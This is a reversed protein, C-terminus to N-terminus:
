AFGRPVRRRHTTRAGCPFRLLLRGSMAPPPRLMQGEPLNSSKVYVESSLQSAAPNILNFCMTIIVGAEIRCTVELELMDADDNWHGSSVAGSVPSKFTEVNASDVSSSSYITLTGTGNASRANSLTYIQIRTDQEATMPVSPQLTVCIVNEACPYPSSQWIEAKKFGSDRVFLPAGEGPMANFIGSLIRLSDYEMEGGELAGLEESKVYVDQAFQPLFPNAVEFSLVYPVGAVMDAGIRFQLSTGDWVADTFPHSGGLSIAGYTANAGALGSITIKAVDLSAIRFEVNTALTLTLVNIDGPYPSSQGISKTTFAAQSKFSLVRGVMDFPRLGMSGDPLYDCGHSNAPCRVLITCTQAPQEQEANKVELAIMTHMNAPIASTVRLILDGTAGVGDDVPTFSVKQFYFPHMGGIEYDSGTLVSGILGSITVESGVPVVVNTKMMMMLTNYSRIVTSSETISAAIISPTSSAGLVQGSMTSVGIIVSPHDAGVSPQVPEQFSMPNEVELNFSITERAKMGDDSQVTLKLTASSEIWTPKGFLPADRGSVPAPGKKVRAGVLGVISVVSGMPLDVNPVLSVSLTNAEGGIDSCESITKAIFAPAEVKMPCGDRSGLELVTLEERTESAVFSAVAGCGEPACNLGQAVAQLTACAQNCTPNLIDFSFVYGNPMTHNLTESFFITLAKSDPCWSGAGPVGDESSRFSQLVDGTGATQATKLAILGRPAQAGHFGSITLSSGRNPQIPANTKMSVTITNMAGPRPTSQEIKLTTIEPRVIKLPLQDGAALGAVAPSHMRVPAIEGTSISVPPASQPSPPNLLEFTFSYSTGAETAVGDPLTLVLSGTSAAWKVFQPTGFSPNSALKFNDNSKTVSGMLGSITFRTPRRVVFNTAFTVTILNKRGSTACADTYPNSQVIDKVTFQQSDVNLPHHEVTSLTDMVCKDVPAECSGTNTAWITILPARQGVLPNKLKFTFVAESGASVTSDPKLTLKKAVDDWESTGFELTTNHLPIAGTTANSGVFGAIYINSATTLEINARLTVTIFNVAGPWTVNQAVTKTVFAPAHVKLPMADRDSCSYDCKICSNCRDGSAGCAVCTSFPVSTVDREMVEPLIPMECKSGPATASITVTPSSTCVGPNRVQVSVVIPEDRTSWVVGDAMEFILEGLEKSWQAHPKFKDTSGYLHSPEVVGLMGTADAISSLGAVTIKTGTTNTTANGGWLRINAAITVTINNLADPYPSSQGIKKIVFTPDTIRLVAAEGASTRGAIPAGSDKTFKTEAITFLDAHSVASVGVGPPNQGTRPNKFTFSFKYTEGALMDHTNQLKIVIHDHGAVPDVVFNFETQFGRPVTASEDMTVNNIGGMVHTITINSPYMMKVNPQLVVTMNNSESHGQCGPWPYSQSAAKSMFAPACVEISETGDMKEGEGSPGTFYQEPDNPMEAELRIDSSKVGVYKNRFHVKFSYDKFPEIRAGRAIKMMLTGQTEDWMAYTSKALDGASEFLNVHNSGTVVDFLPVLFAKDDGCADSNYCTNRDPKKMGRLGKIAFMVDMSSDLATSVAITFTIVNCEGPWCKTQLVSKKVFERGTPVKVNLVRQAESPQVQCVLDVGGRSAEIQLRPESDDVSGAEAPMLMQLAFKTESGVPISSTSGTGATVRLVLKGKTGDWSEMALADFLGDVTRVSPPPLNVNNDVNSLPGRILGTLTIRAGPLLVINPEVTINLTNLMGPGNGRWVKDTEDYYKSFYDFEAAIKRQWVTDVDQNPFILGM